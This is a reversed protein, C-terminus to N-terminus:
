EVKIREFTVLTIESSPASAVETPREKGSAVFCMKRTNGDLKYIGLYRDVKGQADTATFDISKPQKAPDITSTGNSIEKGEYFLSWTGDSSNVVKIKNADEESAKDGNVVLAIVRWNGEIKKRDKKVAEDMADDAYVGTALTAIFAGVFLLGFLLRTVIYEMLFSFNFDFQVLRDYGVHVNKKFEVILVDITSDIKVLEDLM